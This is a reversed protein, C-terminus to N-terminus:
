QSRRKARWETFAVQLEKGLLFAATWGAILLAPQLWNELAGLGRECIWSVSAILLVAAQSAAALQHNYSGSCGHAIELYL